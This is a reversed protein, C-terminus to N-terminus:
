LLEGFCIPSRDRIKNGRQQLFADLAVVIPRRELTSFAAVM